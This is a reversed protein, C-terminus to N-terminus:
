SVDTPYLRHTETILLRLVWKPVRVIEDSRTDAPFSDERDENRLGAAVGTRETGHARDKTKRLGKPGRVPERAEEQRGEPAAKTVSEEQRGANRPVGDPRHRSKELEDLHEANVVSEATVDVYLGNWPGIGSLDLLDDMQRVADGVLQLRGASTGQEFIRHAASGM